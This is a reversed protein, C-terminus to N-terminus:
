GRGNQAEREKKVKGLAVSLLGKRKVWKSPSTLFDVIENVEHYVRQVIDKEAASLETLKNDTLLESAMNNKVMWLIEVVTKWDPGTMARELSAFKRKYEEDSACILVFNKIAEKAPRRM